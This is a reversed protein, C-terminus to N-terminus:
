TNGRAITRLDLARDLVDDAVGHERAVDRL